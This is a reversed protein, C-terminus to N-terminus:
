ENESNGEGITTNSITVNDGEISATPVPDTLTIGQATLQIEPDTAQLIPYGDNDPISNIRDGEIVAHWDEDFDFGSLTDDGEPLPSVGQMEDSTLGVVNEENGSSGAAEDQGTTETDWYANKLITNDSSQNGVIGGVGSGEVDVPGVVYIHKIDTNRWVRGVLGGVTSDEGEINVSSYSKEIVQGTSITTGGVLGGVNTDTSELTGLSASNCVTSESGSLRGLLGGAFRAEASVDVAAVCNELLWYSRGVLGGVHATDLTATATVEGTASCNTVHVEGGSETVGVLTGVESEGTVDADRIHVDEIVASDDARGFLGVNNQNGREIIVDSITHGNGNFTGTFPEIPNWDDGIGDYDPTEEDLDEVLVYDGDLDDRIEDLEEWNSITSSSGIVTGGFKTAVAGVGLATAVVFSRRSIGSGAPKFRHGTNNNQFREIRKQDIRGLEDHEHRETLHTILQERSEYTSSCYGCEQKETM